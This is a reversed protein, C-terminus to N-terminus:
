DQSLVSSNYKALNAVVEDSHHPRRVPILQQEEFLREVLWTSTSSAAEGLVAVAPESAAPRSANRLSALLDEAQMGSNQLNFINFCQVSWILRPRMRRVEQGGEKLAQLMQLAHSAHANLNAVTSADVPFMTNFIIVSSLLYVIGFLNAEYTKSTIGGVGSFGETDILLVRLTGSSTAVEIPRSTIWVGGTFSTVGSGVQFLTEYESGRFFARGLMSSKGTRTPGVASVICFPERQARLVDLGEQVLELRGTSVAPKKFLLVARPGLDEKLGAFAESSSALLCILLTSARLMQMFLPPHM